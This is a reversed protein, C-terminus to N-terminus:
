EYIDGILKVIAGNFLMFNSPEEGLSFCFHEKENNNSFVIQYDDKDENCNTWERKFAFLTVLTSIRDHKTCDVDFKIDDKKVCVKDESIYIEKEDFNFKILVEM